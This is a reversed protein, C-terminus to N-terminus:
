PILDNSLLRFYRMAFIEDTPLISWHFPTILDHINVLHLLLDSSHYDSAMLYWYCWTNYLDFWRCKLELFFDQFNQPYWNQVLDLEFVFTTFIWSLNLQLLMWSKDYQSVYKGIQHVNNKVGGKLRVTCMTQVRLVAIRCKECIILLTTHIRIFYFTDLNQHLFISQM